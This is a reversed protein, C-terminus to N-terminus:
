QPTLGNRGTDPKKLGRVLDRRVKEVIQAHEDIFNSIAQLILDLSIGQQIFELDAFSIQPDTARTM